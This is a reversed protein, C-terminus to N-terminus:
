REASKWGAQKLEVVLQEAGEWLDLSSWREQAAKTVEPALLDAVARIQDGAIDDFWKSNAVLGMTSACSYFAVARESDGLDAFLLAIGPLTHALTTLISNKVAMGLAQYFYGQAQYKQNKVRAIYGLCALNTSIKEPHNYTQFAMQCEQFNEEAEAYSGEALAAKGFIDKCYANWLSANFHNSKSLLEIAHLAQNRAAKYEGLYLDPYGLHAHLQIAESQSYDLDRYIALTQTYLARAEEFRGQWVWQWGLTAYISVMKHRDDMEKSIALAEYLIAEAKEFQLRLAFFYSLHELSDAM